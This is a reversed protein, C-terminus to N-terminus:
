FGKALTDLSPEVLALIPGGLMEKPTYLLIQISKPVYFCIMCRILLGCDNM